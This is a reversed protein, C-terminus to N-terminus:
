SLTMMLDLSKKALERIDEKVTIRHTLDGRELCELNWLLDQPSTRDMMSCMCTPPSLLRIEQDPYNRSLRSVLHVETGIVWKSGAPADRVTDIIFQTSGVLDAMEVVDPVCEPHVLIKYDPHKNRWSQVHQMQFKEHVPCCGKWLIIKALSLGDQSFGGNKMLPNWVLMEDQTLGLRKGINWGLNQDPLFFIRKNLSFAWRFIKEANSSTCIVGNNEGCFAKLSAYCNIYAVPIIDDECTFRIKEWANNVLDYPAMDAMPCGASLDPLTVIKRGYCLIDATEAMFHVGCFVIYEPQELKAAIQSLRLSDGQVDSFQIVEDRQYNHGMIFVRKGLRRKVEHIRHIAAGDDLARYEEPLVKM